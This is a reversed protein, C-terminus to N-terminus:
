KKVVPIWVECRYDESLTNGEPYVELEPAEAHEYGTAPIWEQYIKEIPRQYGKWIILRVFSRCEQM